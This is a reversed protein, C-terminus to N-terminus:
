ITHFGTHKIREGNSEESTPTAGNTRGRHIFGDSRGKPYM